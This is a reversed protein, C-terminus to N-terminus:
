PIFDFCLRELLQGTPLTILSHQAKLGSCQSPACMLECVNRDVAYGALVAVGEFCVAGDALLWNFVSNNGSVAPHLPTHYPHESCIDM